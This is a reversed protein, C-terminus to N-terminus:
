PLAGRQPREQVLHERSGSVARQHEAHSTLVLAPLFGSVDRASRKDEPAGSLLM